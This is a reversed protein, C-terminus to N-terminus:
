VTLIYKLDNFSKLWYFITNCNSFLFYERKCVIQALNVKLTCNLIYSYTKMMITWYFLKLGLRLCHYHEYLANQNVYTLPKLLYIIYYPMTIMTFPEYRLSTTQKTLRLHSKKPICHVLHITQSLSGLSCDM